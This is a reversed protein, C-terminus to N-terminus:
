GSFLFAISPFTQGGCIWNSKDHYCIKIILKIRGVVNYIHAQPATSKYNVNANKAMKTTYLVAVQVEHNFTSGTTSPIFTGM